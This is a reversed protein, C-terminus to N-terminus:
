KTNKSKEKVKLVLGIFWYLTNKENEEEFAPYSKPWVHACQLIERELFDVLHRIKSEVHGSWQMQDSATNSSAEIVIYHKFRSFFNPTEFLQRWKAKGDIINQIIPVSLRFQRKILDLSSRSVNLTSNQQPYVPTIIPMVHYRDKEYRQPCWIPFGLNPFEEPQKLIVPQPWPWNSFVQFFSQLLITSCANPYMQCVRVVLIAWSLGGLYGLVNSYIGRKKAWLRITLLTLRFTDKNPVLNLIEETVCWGNLSRVCEIDLYKLSVPNCLSVNCIRELGARAFVMDIHIGDYIMKIVPVFAQVIKRLGVVETQDHFLSYFSDFFDERNIFDPTICLVDIDSSKDNVGLRYSGFTYTYFADVNESTASLNRKMSLDRIWKTVFQNLSKLVQLRHIMESDDEFCGESRLEEILTANRCNSAQNSHNIFPEENGLQRVNSGVPCLAM